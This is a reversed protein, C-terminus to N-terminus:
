FAPASAAHHPKVNAINPQPDLAISLHASRSSAEAGDGAAQQTPPQQSALGQLIRRMWM